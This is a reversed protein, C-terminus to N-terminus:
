SQLEHTKPAPLPIAESRTELRKIAMVTDKKLNDGSKTIVVTGTHPLHIEFENDRLNSTTSLWNNAGGALDVGVQPDPEKIMVWGSPTLKAMWTVYVTLFSDEPSYRRELFKLLPGRYLSGSEHLIADRGLHSAPYEITQQESGQNKITGELM